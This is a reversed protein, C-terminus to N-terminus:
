GNRYPPQPPFSFRKLLAASHRFCQEFTGSCSSSCPPCLPMTMSTRLDGQLNARSCIPDSFAFELSIRLLHGRPCLCSCGAAKMCHMGQLNNKCSLAKSDKSPHTEGATRQRYSLKWFKHAVQFVIGAFIRVQPRMRRAVEVVLLHVVAKEEGVVSREAVGVVELGVVVADLEALFSGM